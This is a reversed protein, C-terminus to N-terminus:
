DVNSSKVGNTHSLIPQQHNFIITEYKEREKERERWHKDIIYINLLFLSLSVRERTRVNNTCIAHFIIVKHYMYACM